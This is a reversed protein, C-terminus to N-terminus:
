RYTNPCGYWSTCGTRVYSNRSYASNYYPYYNGYYNQAYPNNYSYYSNYSCSYCGISYQGYGNNYQFVSPESYPRHEHIYMLYENGFFKATSFLGLFVILIAFALAQIAKTAKDSANNPNYSSM